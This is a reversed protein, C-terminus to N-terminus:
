AGGPTEDDAGIRHGDLRRAAREAEAASARKELKTRGHLARNEAAQREAAARAKAKRARRLNVVEGTM